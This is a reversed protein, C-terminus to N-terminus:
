HVHASRSPAPRHVRTAPPLAGLCDSRGQRPPRGAASKLRPAASLYRHLRITWCPTACPAGCSPPPVRASASSRRDSDAQDDGVLVSNEDQWGLASRPIERGRDLVGHRTGAHGRGEYTQRRAGVLREDCRHVRQYLRAWPDRRPLLQRRQHCRGRGAPAVEGAAADRCARDIPLDFAPASGAPASRPASMRVGDRARSRRWLRGPVRLPFSSRGDDGYLAALLAPNHPAMAVTGTVGPWFPLEGNVTM